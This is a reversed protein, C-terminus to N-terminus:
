RGAGAPQLVRRMIETALAQVEGKLGDQATARDKEIDAKASQV